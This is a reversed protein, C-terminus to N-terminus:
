KRIVENEDSYMWGDKEEAKDENNVEFKFTEMEIMQIKPIKGSITVFLLLVIYTTVNLM